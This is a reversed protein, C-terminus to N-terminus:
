SIHTYAIATYWLSWDFQKIYATTLVRKVTKLSKFNSCQVQTRPLRADVLHSSNIQTPLVQLLAALDYMLLVHQTTALMNVANFASYWQRSVHTRASIIAEGRRDPVIDHNAVCIGYLQCNTNIYTIIAKSIPQNEAAPLLLVLCGHLLQVALQHV